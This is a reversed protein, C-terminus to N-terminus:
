QGVSWALTEIQSAAEDLIECIKREVDRLEPTLKLTEVTAALHRLHRQIDTESM